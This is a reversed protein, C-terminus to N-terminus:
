RGERWRRIGEVSSWGKVRRSLEESKLVARKLRVVDKGRLRAEERVVVEQIARKVVESWNIHKLRDMRKKLEKSIRFSVVVGM